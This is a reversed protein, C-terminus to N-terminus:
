KVTNRRLRLRNKLGWFGSPVSQPLLFSTDEDAGATMNGPVGHVVAQLPSEPYQIGTPVPAPDYLHRNASHTRPHRRSKGTGAPPAGSLPAIGALGPLPTLPREEQPRNHPPQPQPKNRMNLNDMMSMPLLSREAHDPSLLDPRRQRKDGSSPPSNEPSPPEVRIGISSQTHSRQPQNSTEPAPLSADVEDQAQPPPPLMYSPQSPVAPQVAVQSLPTPLVIKRPRPPGRSPPRKQTPRQQPPPDQAIPQRPISMTQADIYDLTKRSQDVPSLLDFDSLHTSARSHNSAIQTIRQPPIYTSGDRAPALNPPPLPDNIYDRTRVPLGLDPPPPTAVYVYDRSRSAKWPECLVPSGDDPTAAIAYPGDPVRVPEIMGHPPPLFISLRGDGTTDQARPIWNDPPIRVSHHPVPSHSPSPPLPLPGISSVSASIPIPQIISPTSDDHPTYPRSRAPEPTPGDFRPRSRPRPPSPSSSPSPSEYPRGDPYRHPNANSFSPPTSRIPISPALPVVEPTPRLSLQDPSSRESTSQQPTVQTFVAEEPGRRRSRSRRDHEEDRRRSRHRDEAERRGLLIGHRLGEHYGQQKGEERAAEISREEQLKRAVSRARAADQEADHRRAEVGDLFEQARSIEHQAQELQMKYLALEARSAAADTDAQARADIASRAHVLCETARREADTARQSEEDLKAFTLKLLQHMQQADRQALMRRSSSHHSQTGRDSHDSSSASSAYAPDHDHAARNRYEGSSM